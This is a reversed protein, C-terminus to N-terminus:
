FVWAPGYPRDRIRIRVYVIFSNNNIIAPETILYNGRIRIDDYITYYYAHRYGVSGGTKLVASLASLCQRARAGTYIYIYIRVRGGGRPGASSVFPRVEVYRRGKLGKM